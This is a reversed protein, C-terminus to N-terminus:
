NQVLNGPTSVCGSADSRVAYGPACRSVVCRGRMCSVDAVGPITTCDVGVPSFADFPTMCGGGILSLM